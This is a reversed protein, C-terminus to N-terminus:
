FKFLYEILQISGYGGFPLLLAQLAPQQTFPAFAGERTSRIREMLLKIQETSIPPRPPSAAADDIAAPPPTEKLRAQALLLAEYNALAKTRVAEATKRLLAATYLAYALAFGALLVPILPFNVADFISSHALVMFLISVFPLYILGHIRQTALVILQFDLYDDLYARPVNTEIAERDLLSKPWVNCVNSLTEVFQACVRTQYDVSFIVFWLFSMNLTVLAYYLKEVLQGRHPFSPVGFVSFAAFALLFVLLACVTVWGAMERWSSVRLYNHWVTVIESATGASKPSPKGETDFLALDLYPGIWLASWRSRALTRTQPRTFGFRESIFLTQQRIRIIFVFVLVLMLVFSIFRLVLSPWVSVGELWLFPEGVGNELGTDLESKVVALFSLVTFVLVVVGIMAFRAYWAKAPVPSTLARLTEHVHRNMVAVLVIGLFVMFIAAQKHSFDRLRRDPEIDNCEWWKTWNNHCTINEANLIVKPDTGAVWKQLDSALPSALHVAETRGIEFIQPRLWKSMKDTWFEMKNIWVDVSFPEAYLTMLGARYTATQYSDRFPMTSQQLAPRLSFDLNSAVVLNRTWAKQDAHLYRADLDATFFIKDKNRLDSISPSTFHGPKTRGIEFIQPRLWGPMKKIWIDVDSRDTDLAMLGALYTATQYSDRFPMTSQQLAPRLSLDFNSAVVLNRTWAKQDAHLYRADLDTTFFIKDKFRTRLAQLILLKDYVDSGVISIAKVGRQTFDKDGDLRAIEDALRRLYDTQSRGDAHEPPVDDLQARLDKSKGGDEKRPANSGPKTIDPLVGDLGRLYTFTRVHSSQGADAGCRKSFGDALYRSLTRAYESDWESVLVLGDKCKPQPDVPNPAKVLPAEGQTQLLDKYVLERNVGRQWLEWLLATALVDDTGITRVISHGKLIDTYFLPGFHLFCDWPPRLEGNPSISESALDCNSITASPSFIALTSGNKLRRPDQQQGRRTLDVLMASGAPGILKFSIRSPTSPALDDFLDYLQDLGNTLKDENLWLVLVNSSPMNSSLEGRKFWEFPVNLFPAKLQKDADVVRSQPEREPLPYRFYGLADPNKPSYHHFGLASIVAFRSRRRSEATEPYSSGSVSVAVVTVESLGEGLKQQISERVMELTHIERVRTSQLDNEHKEIAGLPDQWLRAEVDQKDASFFKVRESDSPRASELPVNKVLVGATLLAVMVIPLPNVLLGGAKDNSM